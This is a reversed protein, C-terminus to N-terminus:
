GIIHIMGVKIKSILRLHTPTFTDAQINTKMSFSSELVEDRVDGGILGYM